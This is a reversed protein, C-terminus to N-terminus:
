ELEKFVITFDLSEINLEKRKQEFEEKTLPGYINKEQTKNIKMKLPVIFYMTVSKDMESSFLRPHQKVIIFDDNQGVAFVTASIIGIGYDGDQFGISMDEKVDIASLYYGANLKKDYASGICSQFLSAVAFLVFIGIYCKM